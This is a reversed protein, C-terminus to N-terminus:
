QQLPETSSWFDSHDRPRLEEEKPGGPQGPTGPPYTMASDKACGFGASIHVNGISGVGLDVGFGDPSKARISPMDKDPNVSEVTFGQQEWYRQVVGLLNGRRQASIVTLVHRTRNITTTGTPENLGNSCAERMPYGYSWKVPPQIAALTADLIAEAREGARQMDMTPVKEEKKGQDKTGSQGGVAGCGALSAVLLM